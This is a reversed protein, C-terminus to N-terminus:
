KILGKYKEFIKKLQDKTVIYGSLNMSITARLPDNSKFLLFERVLGVRNDLVLKIGLAVSKGAPVKVPFRAPKGDLVYSASELECEFKLELEGRNQVLVSAELPDGEVLLGADVSYRDLDIRPAPPVDVSASIKLQVRPANPDDSDVFIYKTVDGQYGLSNFVVKIKGTKGPEVIKTSVLAATCGCSTEVNKITLRDDGENTFVFEHTLEAGQKVRGFDRSDVKFVIKPKKPPGASIGWGWAFALVVALVAARTIRLTHAM